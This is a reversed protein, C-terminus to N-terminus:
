RTPSAEGPSTASADDPVLLVLGGATMVPVIGAMLDREGKRAPDFQAFKSRIKEDAFVAVVTGPKGPDMGAVRSAASFPGPDKFNKFVVGPAGKEKAIRLVNSVYDPNYMYGRTDVQYFKDADRIWVPMINAGEGYPRPAGRAAAFEENSM